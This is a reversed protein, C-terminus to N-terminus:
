YFVSSIYNKAHINNNYRNVDSIILNQGGLDNSTVLPLFFDLYPLEEPGSNETQISMYSNSVYKTIRTQGWLDNFTVQSHM